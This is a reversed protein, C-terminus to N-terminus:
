MFIPFGEFSSLFRSCPPLLCNRSPSLTKPFTFPREWFLNTHNCKRREERHPTNLGSQFFSVTLWESSIEPWVGCGRDSDATGGGFGGPAGRVSPRPLSASRWLSRAHGGVDEPPGGAVGFAAKAKEAATRM